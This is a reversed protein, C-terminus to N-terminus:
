PKRTKGIYGSLVRPQYMFHNDGLTSAWDPDVLSIGSEIGMGRSINLRSVRCRKPSQGWSSPKVVGNKLIKKKKFFFFFFFSISNKFFIQLIQHRRKQLDVM